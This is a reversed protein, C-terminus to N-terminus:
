YAMRLVFHDADSLIAASNEGVTLLLSFDPPGTGFDLRELPLRSLNTVLIGKRPDYTQLNERPCTKVHRALRRLYEIYDERTVSPMSERIQVALAETDMSQIEDMNLLLTHFQLGNGLYAAGWDDIHRRVDIPITLQMTKQSHKLLIKTYNQAIMATLLDNTSVAQGRTRSINKIATKVENKPIRTQEITFDKQSSSLSPVQRDFAFDDLLIRNHKPTFLKMARQMRGPEGARAASALASLFFFYSYGDGAVHAMKPIIVTGNQYQLVKLFFLGPLEGPNARSYIRFLDMSDAEMDFDSAIMEEASYNDPRFSLAHIAGHGYRGFVPWFASSLFRLASRIREADVRNRYFFLFEIPYLGGAFLADVPSIATKDM